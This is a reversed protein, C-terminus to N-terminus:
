PNVRTLVGGQLKFTTTQFLSNLAAPDGYHNTGIQSADIHYYTATLADPAATLLVCGHSNPWKALIKAPSVAPDQSSIQMIDGVSQVLQEIGPVQSLAPDSM